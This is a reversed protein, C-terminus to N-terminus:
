RLYRIKGKEIRAPVLPFLIDHSGKGSEVHGFVGEYIFDGGLAGQIAEPSIEKGDLLDAFLRLFDYGNAAFHNLPTGFRLNYKDGIRRAFAFNENYIVPATLYVGDLEPLRGAAGADFANGSLIRGEYGKKRLQGIISLIHVQYGIICAAEKDMMAEVAGTFDRQGVSFPRGEIKGGRSFRTKMLEFIARGYDDDLYIFGLKEIRLKGLVFLMANVETEPATFYKFVWDRDRTLLPTAAVLGVLPVRSEEALPAAKMAVRSTATIWLDPPSPDEMPAFRGDDEFLIKSDLLSIEIKRGNVGGWTNIEDAALVLGRHVANGANHAAGSVPLLALVRLPSSERLVRGMILVAGVLVACVLFLPIRKGETTLRNFWM